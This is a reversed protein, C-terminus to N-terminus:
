NDDKLDRDIYGQLMEAAKNTEVVKGDKVKYLWTTFVLREKANPFDFTIDNIGNNPTAWYKYNADKYWDKKTM